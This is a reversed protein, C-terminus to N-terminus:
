LTGIPSMPSAPPEFLINPAVTNIPEAKHKKPPQMGPLEDRQRKEKGTAHIDDKEKTTAHSTIIQYESEVKKDQGMNKDIQSPQNHTTFALQVDTTYTPNQSTLMQIIILVLNKVLLFMSSM